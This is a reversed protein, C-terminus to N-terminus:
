LKPSRTWHVMCWKCAFTHVSMGVSMGVCMCAYIYVCIRPGYRNVIRNGQDTQCYVIKPFGPSQLRYSGEPMSRVQIYTWAQSHLAFYARKQQPYLSCTPFIVSARLCFTSFADSIGILCESIALFTCIPCYTGGAPLSTYIIIPGHRFIESHRLDARRRQWRWEPSKVRGSYSFVTLNDEGTIEPFRRNHHRFQPELIFHQHSAIFRDQKTQVSPM